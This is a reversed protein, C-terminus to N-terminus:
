QIEHSYEGLEYMARTYGCKVRDWRNNSAMAGLEFIMVGDYNMYSYYVAEEISIGTYIGFSDYLSCADGILNKALNTFYEMSWSSESNGYVTKVYNGLHFIDLYDAFGTVDYDAGAWSYHTSAWKSTSSAWNQGVENRFQYWAAAWLELDVEPKISKVVERIDKVYSQILSARWAMWKQFLDLKGKNYTGFNDDSYVTMVDSPWNEVKAGIYEEFAARSYDSFDSRINPYRCYDLAFGDIDYNTVIERVQATVYDHVNPHAPNLFLYDNPHVRIDEIGTTLLQQCYADKLYKEYYERSKSSTPEHFTFICYSVSLKMDRAHCADIMAQLLDFDQSITVNDITQAYGLNDSRRYLVDGSKPTKIEVVVKNFGNESMKQVIDEVNKQTNLYKYANVVDIWMVMPKRPEPAPYVSAKVTYKATNRGDESTVRFQLTSRTYNQSEMPDPRIKAGDSLEYSAKAASMSLNQDFFYNVVILKNEQDIEAELDGSATHIVLSKLLCETGPVHPEVSPDESAPDESVPDESVPDASEGSPDISPGPEPM